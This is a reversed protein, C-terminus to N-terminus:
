EAIEIVKKLFTRSSPEKPRGHCSMAIIKGDSNVTSHCGTYYPEDFCKIKILSDTINARRVFFTEDTKVNRVEVWDDSM